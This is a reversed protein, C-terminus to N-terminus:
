KQAILTELHKIFADLNEARMASVLLMAREARIAQEIANETPTMPKDM